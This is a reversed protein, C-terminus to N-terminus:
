PMNIMIEVYKNMPMLEIRFSFLLCITMIDTAIEMDKCGGWLLTTSKLRFLSHKPIKLLEVPRYKAM